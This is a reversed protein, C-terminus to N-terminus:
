WSYYHRGDPLVEYAGGDEVAARELISSLQRNCILKSRGDAECEGLEMLLGRFFKDDPGFFGALKDYEEPTFAHVVKTGIEGSYCHITKEERDFYCQHPALLAANHNATEIKAQQYIGGCGSLMILSLVLILAKM